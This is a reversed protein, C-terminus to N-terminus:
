QKSQNIRFGERITKGRAELGPYVSYLCPLPTGYCRPNWNGNIKEPVRVIIDGIQEEKVPPHPLPAPIAWNKFSNDKAQKYVIYSATCLMLIITVVHTMKNIIRANLLRSTFNFLFFIGTILLGYIFRPDPAICFWSAFFLILSIALIRSPSLGKKSNRWIYISYLIIGAIGPLFIMHNYASMYKFWFPIWSLGNLSATTEIDLIGNSVRNYYKIFRLLHELVEPPTKWDVNFYNMFSSPYFPYGSVIINRAIFPVMLSLVIIIFSSVPYWKKNKLLHITAFIGLLLFPYNTIRVTFLYVPWILWEPLLGFDRRHDKCLYTEICLVLVVLMTIYDYNITAANGRIVPWSAFSFLLTVLAAFRLSINEKKYHHFGLQLFYVCFWLSLAGNLATFTNADTFPFHFVAVSSFWSSNFGYREHLNAIGPVSGFVEVWQVMQIHYSETDDM